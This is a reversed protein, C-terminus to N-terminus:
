LAEPLGATQKSRLETKVKSSQQQQRKSCDFALARVCVRVHVYKLTNLSLLLARRGAHGSM